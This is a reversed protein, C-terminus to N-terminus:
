MCERRQIRERERVNWVLCLRVKLDEVLHSNCKVLDQWVAKWNATNAVNQTVAISDEQSLILTSRLNLFFFFCDLLLKIHTTDPM